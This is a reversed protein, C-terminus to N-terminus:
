LNIVSVFRISFVSDSFAGEILTPLYVNPFSERSRWEGSHRRGFRWDPSQREWTEVTEARFPIKM